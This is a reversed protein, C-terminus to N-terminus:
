DSAGAPSHGRPGQSEDMERILRDEWQGRPRRKGGGIISLRHQREYWSRPTQYRYWRWLQLNGTELNIRAASLRIGDGHTVQYTIGLWFEGEKGDPVNVDLTLAKSSNDFRPVRKSARNQAAITEAFDDTYTWIRPRVDYRVGPGRAEVRLSYM